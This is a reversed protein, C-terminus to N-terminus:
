TSEGKRRPACPILYAIAFSFNPAAIILGAKQFALAQGIPVEAELSSRYEGPDFGRLVSTITSSRSNSCGWVAARM